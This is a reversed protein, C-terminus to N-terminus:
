IWDISKSFPLWPMYFKRQCATSLAQCCQMKTHLPIILFFFFGQIHKFFSLCFFKKHISWCKPNIEHTEQHKLKVMPNNWYNYQSILTHTPPDTPPTDFNHCYWCDTIIFINKKKKKVFTFADTDKFFGYIKLYWYTSFLEKRIYFM